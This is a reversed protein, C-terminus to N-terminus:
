KFKGHKQWLMEIIINMLDIKSGHPINELEMEKVYKCNCPTKAKCKLIRGEPTKHYM